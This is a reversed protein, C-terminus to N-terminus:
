VSCLYPKNAFGKYFNPCSIRQFCSFFFEQTGFTHNLAIDPCLGDDYRATIKM